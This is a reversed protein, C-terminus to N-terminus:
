YSTLFSSAQGLSFRVILKLVCEELVITTALNLSNDLVGLAFGVRKSADHVTSYTHSVFHLIATCLNM